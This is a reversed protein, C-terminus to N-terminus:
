GTPAPLAEAGEADLRENSNRARLYGYLSSFIAGMLWGYTAAVDAARESLATLVVLTVVPILVDIFSRFYIGLGIGGFLFGLLASLNESKKAHLVHLKNLIKDIWEPM